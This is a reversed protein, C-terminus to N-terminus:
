GVSGLGQFDLQEHCFSAFNATEFTGTTGALCSSCHQPRAHVFDELPQSRACLPPTPWYGTIHGVTTSGCIAHHFHLELCRTFGLSTSHWRGLVFHFADGIFHLPWSIVSGHRRRGAPFHCTQDESRWDGEWSLLAPM